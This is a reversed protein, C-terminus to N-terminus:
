LNERKGLAIPLTNSAMTCSLGWLQLWRQYFSKLHRHHSQTLLTCLARYVCPSLNVRVSARITIVHIQDKPESNIHQIYPSLADFGLQRLVVLARSFPMAYLDFWIDRSYNLRKEYVAVVSAGSCQSHSLPSLSHSHSRSRSHLLPFSLKRGATYAQLASLLGVPGAGVVVVKVDSSGASDKLNRQRPQELNTLLSNLFLIVRLLKRWVKLSGSAM